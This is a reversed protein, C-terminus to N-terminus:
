PDVLEDDHPPRFYPVDTLELVHWDIARSLKGTDLLSGAADLLQQLQQTM